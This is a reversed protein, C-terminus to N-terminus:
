KIEEQPNKSEKAIYRFLCHDSGTQYRINKVLKIEPNYGELIADDAYRCFIQSYQSVGFEAAAAWVVCNGTRMIFDGDEVAPKPSMNKPDMDGYTIWNKLTLPRGLDKVIGAIRKGRAHGFEILAEKLLAEGKQPGLEKIVAKAVFSFLVVGMGWGPVQYRDGLQERLTAVDALDGWSIGARKEKELEDM